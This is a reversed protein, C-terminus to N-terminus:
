HMKNKFEENSPTNQSLPIIQLVHAIKAYILHNKIKEFFNFLRLRATSFKLFKFQLFKFDFRPRSYILVNTTFV